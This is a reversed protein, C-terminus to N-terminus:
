SIRSIPSSFMSLPLIPLSFQSIPLHPFHFHYSDTPFIPFNTFPSFSFSLFSTFYSFTIYHLSFTCPKTNNFVVFRFFVCEIASSNSNHIASAVHVTLHLLVMRTSHSVSLLLVLIRKALLLLVPILRGGFKKLKFLLFLLMTM